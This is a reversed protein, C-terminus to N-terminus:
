RTSSRARTSKSASKATKKIARSSSTAPKASVSASRSSASKTAPKAAPKTARSTSAAPKTAHSRSSASKTAPKTPRSPSAAPKTSVKAPRSSASKSTASAPKTAPTTLQKSLRAPAIARYSEDIWGTLMDVPVDDQPGFAATVWGSRALGYGTPTAFPLLLAVESSQPLKTSLSLQSKAEDLYFSVFIKNKIKIACHGWPFDEHSEPYALAAARLTKFSRELASPM